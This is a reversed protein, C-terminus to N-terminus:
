AMMLRKEDDNEPIHTNGRYFTTFMNNDSATWGLMRDKAKGAIIAILLFDM